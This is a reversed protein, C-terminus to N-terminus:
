GASIALREDGESRQVIRAFGAESFQARRNEVTSVVVEADGREVLVDTVVTSLASRRSIALLHAQSKAKANEVLTPDDLRESQALVPCAIDVDDDFALTRVI